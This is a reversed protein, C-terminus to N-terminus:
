SSGLARERDRRADPLCDAVIPALREALICHGKANPHGFDVFLGASCRDRGSLCPDDLYPVREETAVSAMIQRYFSVPAHLTITQSTQHHEHRSTPAILVPSAGSERAAAVMQRLNRAYAEPAVRPVAAGARSARDIKAKVILDRLLRYLNSRRLITRIRGSWGLPGVFNSDPYISPWDDDIGFCIIVVDPRFRPLTRRLLTKGQESSYGNVGTNIVTCHRLSWRDRLIEQLRSPYSEADAVGYGATVSDGTCLIVPRSPPLAIEPGRFGEANLHYRQSSARWPMEVVDLSQRYAWCLEPDERLWPALHGGMAQFGARAAPSLVSDGSRPLRLTRLAGEAGGFVLVTSALALAAEKRYRLNHM